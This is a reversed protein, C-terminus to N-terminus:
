ESALEGLDRQRDALCGDRSIYARSNADGLALHEM